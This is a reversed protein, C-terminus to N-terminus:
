PAIGTVICADTATDGAAPYPPQNYPAPTVDEAVLSFLNDGVVSGLAPITQYWNTVYSEGPSLNTYGARWSTYSNGSAITVNVRGAMRRTQGTYLNTLTVAMQTSFPVTGASPTCTLEAAVTSSAGTGNSSGPTPSSFFVWTAAGDTERGESEDENQQGFTYSDILENGAAIRGYLGIEEGSAGLKFNTHLPGDGEDDDCWLVLFEGVGLTLEPFAWQTTQTLDDTLFLGEMEVDVPGPNYIEVWDPFTGPEDPDEIFSTNDAMFENIFLVVEEPTTSDDNEAGPTATGLTKFGGTGNPWRGWSVDPGLPQWTTDDVIVGGDLLYLPEGDASLKFGAHYDGEEPEDDAWVIIYEGPAITTAPFTSPFVYADPVSLDDTLSMGTLAITETGGNYIEIWDDFDGHEDAMTSSNSAMLENIVLGDLPTWTGIQGRLWTDRDRIFPELGPIPRPRGGSGYTQDTSMANDFQTPTFIRRPSVEAYVHPQILTRLEEMRAILTDPEAAGAMLKQLHGIYIDDYAQIQWLREALPREEGGQPNTWYPSLQKLQTISLGYMNFVGFSENLDWNAFVFRSDLDRHYLYYNACRGIYTDLNVCLNDVAILALASNVDILDHMVGPLDGIATNNLGDTLEILASWDNATENTKLEYDGYYSTQDTGLYELTGYDDGKWLNGDEQASGFRSDIFEGDFQEVITYLGWYDGNIYLAAYNTRETPLGAAYGLEYMCKERVGSPDLWNCNLNLKDLGYIEQGAVFEDIDLKFSKKDTPNSYYSSSGKFRVGIDDLHLGDWDFDAELYLPDELGEFNDELLTWWNSQSFTLHIEHVADGDFLPHSAAPPYGALAPTATGIIFLGALLIFAPYLIFHSSATRAPSRKFM